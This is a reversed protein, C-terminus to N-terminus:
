TDIFNGGQEYYYDLIEFTTKKDCKGMSDAWADGFNMSGLCLPSVRVSAAPCLVRQYSLQSVPKPPDPFPGPM